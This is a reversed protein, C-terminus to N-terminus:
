LLTHVVLLNLTCVGQTTWNMWIKSLIHIIIGVLCTGFFSTNVILIETPFEMQRYGDISWSWTTSQFKIEQELISLLSTLFSYFYILNKITQYKFGNKKTCYPLPMTSASNSISLQFWSIIICTEDSRKLKQVM